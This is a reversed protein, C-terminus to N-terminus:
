ISISMMVDKTATDKAHIYRMTTTARAHGLEKQATALDYHECVYSGHTHRLSHNHIDCDIGARNAICKLTKNLSQSCMPTHNDSIFLNDYESDKRTKLYEDIYKRCDDNFYITRRKKGKTTITAETGLYDDLTLNVLETVRVGTSIYTAIIAKDRSNKGFKILRKADEMDIYDVEESEVKPCKIKDAPSKAIVDCDVLFDFYGRVSAIKRAITASAYHNIEERWDLMDIYTIDTESKKIINFMQEIDSKYAEITHESMEEVQM